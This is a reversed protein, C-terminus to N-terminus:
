LRPNLAMETRRSDMTMCLKHVRLPELTASKRPVAFDLFRPDIGNREHYRMRLEEVM